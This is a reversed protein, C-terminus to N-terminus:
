NKGAILQVPEQNLLRDTEQNVYQTWAALRLHSKQVAEQNRAAINKTELPDAALDYIETENRTANYIYKFNGERYGFLYDSWPAIFYTRANKPHTFLSTGQWAQPAAYGLMAMITPAVDVMGGTAEINEERLGPNILICPVHVNEEYVMRGHTVQGHRGFAEGHDGIVVLLTSEALNNKQLSALLDGIISDSYHLANLYKNFLTDAVYYKQAGKYFYPYHTQYTWMMAFFPKVPEQAIWQYLERATCGDENGNMYAWHKNNVTFQSGCAASNCDTVKDFRRNRLFEGAKQYRNDASNFFATRYGHQKLESTITTLRLDPHEETLSYYSLWPYISGLMSVMSLNTAPAHAYINKFTVSQSAYKKLNPTLNYKGGYTDIYEAPTSEMVFIVVNRIMANYHRATAGTAQDYKLSDPVDMTFLAPTPAFPNVSEAFAVVPNSILDYKMGNADIQKKALISYSIALLFVISV